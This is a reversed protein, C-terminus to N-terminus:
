RITLIKTKNTKDLMKGLNLISRALANQSVMTKVKSLQVTTGIMLIRVQGILRRLKPSKYKKILRQVIKKAVARTLTWSPVLKASRIKVAMKTIKPRATALPQAFSKELSHNYDSNIKLNIQYQEKNDTCFGCFLLKLFWSIFM